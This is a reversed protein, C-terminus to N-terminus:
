VSALNDCTDKEEEAQAKSSLFNKKAGGGCVAFEAKKLRRWAPPPPLIPTCLATTAFLCLLSAGDLPWVVNEMKM